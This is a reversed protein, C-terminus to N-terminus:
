WLSLQVFFSHKGRVDRAGPYSGRLGCDEMQMDGMICRIQGVGGGGGVLNQM